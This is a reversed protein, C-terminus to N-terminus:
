NVRLWTNGRYSCGRQIKSRSKKKGHFHRKGHHIYGCRLNVNSEKLNSGRQTYEAILSQPWIKQTTHWKKEPRQKTKNKKTRTQQIQKQKKNKIRIAEDLLWRIVVPITFTLIKKTVKKGYENWQCNILSYNKEVLHCKFPKRIGYRGNGIREELFHAQHQQRVQVM